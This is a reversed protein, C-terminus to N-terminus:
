VQDVGGPDAEPADGQTRAISRVITQLAAIERAAVCMRGNVASSDPHYPGEVWDCEGLDFPANAALLVRWQDLIGEHITQEAGEAADDPVIITGDTTTITTGNNLLVVTGYRVEYPM